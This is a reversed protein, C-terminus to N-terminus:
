PTWLHWKKLVQSIHRSKVGEGTELSFGVTMWSTGRDTFNRNERTSANRKKRKVLKIHSNRTHIEWHEDQKHHVWRRWDTPKHRKDFKLFKGATGHKERKKERQTL